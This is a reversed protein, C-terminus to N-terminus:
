KIIGINLKVFFLLDSVFRKIHGPRNNLFFGRYVGELNHDVFWKPARKDEGCYVKFSGGLGQYIANHRKQMDRMLIEQKPSGMAVFVVDPKNTAIEEILAERESESTIYGNRFGSINLTPYEIKLKTITKNIIDETAGIFYFSKSDKYREIIKLWLECGPIKPCENYGRKHLVAVAGLGDAYGINSNIIERLETTAKNIKGANIAILIGKSKDVHDILDKSNRFPYIDVGNVTIKEM